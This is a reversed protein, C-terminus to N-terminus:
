YHGVFRLGWGINADQVAANMANQNAYYSLLEAKRRRARMIRAIRQEDASTGAMQGAPVLKGRAAGKAAKVRLPVRKNSDIRQDAPVGAVPDFNRPFGIKAALNDDAKAVHALSMALLFATATRM